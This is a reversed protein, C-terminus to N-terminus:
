TTGIEVSNYISVAAGEVVADSIHRCACWHM